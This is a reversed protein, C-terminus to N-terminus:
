YKDSLTFSVLKHFHSQHSLSPYLDLQTFLQGRNFLFGIMFPTLECEKEFATITTEGRKIIHNQYPCDKVQGVGGGIKHNSVKSERSCVYQKDSLGQRAFLVSQHNWGSPSQSVFIKLQHDWWHDWWYNWWPWSLLVDLELNPNEM